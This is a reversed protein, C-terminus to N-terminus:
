RALRRRVSYLDALNWKYKVDISERTREQGALAAGVATALVVGTVLRLTVRM